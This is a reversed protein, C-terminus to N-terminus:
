LFEKEIAYKFDSEDVGWHAFVKEFTSQIQDAITPESM